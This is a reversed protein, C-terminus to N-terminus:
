LIGGPVLYNLLAAMFIFVLLSVVANKLKHKADQVLQPNGGAIVYEVGAIVIMLTVVLGVGVSLFRIIGAMYAFVARNKKICNEGDIPVGLEVEDDSCSGSNSSGGDDSTTVYSGDSCYANKTPTGPNGPCGVPNAPADVNYGPSGPAVYGTQPTVYGGDQCYSSAEPTGENGPCGVPVAPADAQAAVKLAPMFGLAFLIVILIAFTTPLTLKILSM